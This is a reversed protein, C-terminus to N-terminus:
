CGHLGVLFLLATLAALSEQMSAEADDRTRTVRRLRRAASTSDEKLNEIELSLEAAKEYDEEDALRQQEFEAEALRRRPLLWAGGGWRVFFSCLLWRWPPFIKPKISAELSTSRRLFVCPESECARSYLPRLPFDGPLLADNTHEPIPVLSM